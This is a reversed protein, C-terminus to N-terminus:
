NVAATAARPCLRKAEEDFVVAVRGIAKRSLVLDMAEWCREFPFVQNVELKIRGQEIWRLMQNMAGRVQPEFVKGMDKHRKPDNGWQGNYYGNNLGLVKINKVLLINAPIQPVVGSSFGVPMICGEPAVCRLSQAFVDGGVPDYVADVGRGDTLEMVRTRFDDTRYNIVHDAGHRRCVEAKDDSGCTAFVTAGLIKAIDIAALGVGGAAGHILISQGFRLNIWQPWVLAIYSTMFSTTLGVAEHFAVSDPLKFTRHAPAICEEAYAGNNVFSTVRDGAQLGAVGSGVEMVYGCLENGPVHPLDPKIQYKGEVRLSLAFNVGVAQTRIRVTGPELVPRPWDDEIKLNKFQTWERVVLARM